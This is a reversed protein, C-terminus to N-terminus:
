DESGHEGTPIAELSKIADRILRIAKGSQPIMVEDMEKAIDELKEIFEQRDIDLDSMSGEVIKNCM